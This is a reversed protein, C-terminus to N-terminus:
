MLFLGIGINGDADEFEEFRGKNNGFQLYTGVNLNDSEVISTGYTPSNPNEDYGSYFIKKNNKDDVEFGKYDITSSTPADTKSYHMGDKDFQAETSIVATVTVGDVGTGNAIEQVQTKTYTDTQLQTVQNTITEVSTLPAYDDFKDVLENYHNTENNEIDDTRSTLAEITQNQKNVIIYAQNIKQDTKDSKKYDTITEELKDTYIREELGKDITIEDNLMLCSYVDDGIQVNYKDLLELYTIGPSDFDNIYYELGNLQNFIEQLYSSRDNFNLIQNDSIKLECLGNEEISEDDKQYINDSDASRSLVISNIPGYKEGFTVNINKLYNENITEFNNVYQLKLYVDSTITFQGYFLNMAYLKNLEKILNEDTIEEDTPTTLVYYVYVDNNNLWTKLDAITIAGTTHKVRIQTAAGANMIGVVNNTDVTYSLFAMDLFKCYFRPNNTDVVKKTPFNSTNAMNSGNKGNVITWNWSSSLKIKDIEKHIYWKGNEKYIKDQYNDIKCLETEGLDFEYTRTKEGQTFTIEITGTTTEVNIPNTPTPSGDQMLDGFLQADLIKNYENDTITISKGEVNKTENILNNVYRVELEDNSNICINSATVQSLEDLVDRFTYGLSKGNSDLYLENPIEKNYNVFEDNENAFDLGLKTAIAKIYNKITIPYTIEMAEYDVMSYLMKDYCVIKYTKTDAQYESQYVVYNSYNMYEYNDNVLVGQQFNVITNLSIDIKSEIDLEKMVSKLLDTNLIPKVKVLNDNSIITNTNVNTLITNIQRIGKISNKYDNTHTRM